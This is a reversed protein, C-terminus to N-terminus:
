EVKTACAKVVRIAENYGAMYISIIKHNISNKELEKELIPQAMILEDIIVQSVEKLIGEATQDSIGKGM